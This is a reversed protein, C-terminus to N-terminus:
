NWSAVQKCMAVFGEQPLDMKCMNVTKTVLQINDVTYGEDSDIRDISVNYYPANKKGAWQPLTLEEGTLACRGHQEDFLAVLDDVTISFELGRREAGKKFKNLFTPSFGEIRPSPPRCYKCYRIINNVVCTARSYYERGCKCRVLFRFDGSTYPSLGIVELDGYTCGIYKEDAYKSAVRGARARTIVSTLPKWM